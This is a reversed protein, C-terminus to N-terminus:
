VIIKVPKDTWWLTSLSIGHMQWTRLMTFWDPHPYNLKYSMDDVKVTFTKVPTHEPTFKKYDTDTTVIVLKPWQISSDFGYSYCNNPKIRGTSVIDAIEHPDAAYYYARM